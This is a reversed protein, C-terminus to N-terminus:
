NKRRRHQRAAKNQVPPPANTDQRVPTPHHRSWWAIGALGCLSLVSIVEGWLHAATQTRYVTIMGAVAPADVRVQGAASSVRLHQGSSGRAHWFPYYIIPLKVACEKEGAPQFEMVNPRLWKWSAVGGSLAVPTATVSSAVAAPSIELPLYEGSDTYGKLGKEQLYAATYSAESLQPQFRLKRQYGPTLLVALVAVGAAAWQYYPLRKLPLCAASLAVFFCVLGLLRWSFQIYRFSAPLWSLLLQPQLIFLLCGIAAAVCYARVRRLWIDDESRVFFSAATALLMLWCAVGADFSMEKEFVNRRSLNYWSTPDSSFLQRFSPCHAVLNRLTAGMYDMRSAWVGPLLQRQPLVYFATLGAALALLLALRVLSQRNQRWALLIGVPLLALPVFYLAMVSHTIGLLAIGLPLMLEGGHGRAHRWAGLAILPYWAFAWCEALAGRVGVDVFRYPAMSYITACALAQWSSRCLVFALVYFLLASAVVSLFFATNVSVFVSKTLFMLASTLLLTFPPYFVPFASGMGLTADQFVLPPFGVTKLENYYELSRIYVREGEHTSFMSRSLLQGFQFGVLALLLVIPGAHPKLVALM